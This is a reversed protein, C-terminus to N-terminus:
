AALREMTTIYRETRTVELCARKLLQPALDLTQERGVRELQAFSEASATAGMTVCMGKLGHAEFEIGHADRGNVALALRELRPRVDSLFASLLSDRLAPIGM